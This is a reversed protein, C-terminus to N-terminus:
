YVVRDHSNGTILGAHPNLLASNSVGPVAAYLMAGCGGSQMRRQREYPTGSPVSRVGDREGVFTRFDQAATRVELVGKSHGLSFEGNRALMYSVHLIVLRHFEKFFAKCIDFCDVPCVRFCNDMVKM